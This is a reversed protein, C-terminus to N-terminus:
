RTAPTAPHDGLAQAAYPFLLERGPGALATAKLRRIEERGHGRERRRDALPIQGWPLAASQAFLSPQNAKVTLLYHADRQAVLYEAHDRQAHLADATVVVGSLDVTDLLTSLLPIENTKCGIEVQGLVLGSTHDFAAM